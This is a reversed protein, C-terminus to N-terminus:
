AHGITVGGIPAVLSVAKGAGITLREHTTSPVIKILGGDAVNALAAALSGFPQCVDGHETGAWDFDAWVENNGGAQEVQGNESTRRPRLHDAMDLTITTNM